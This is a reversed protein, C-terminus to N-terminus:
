YKYKLILENQAIIEENQRYLALLMLAIAENYKASKYHWNEHSDSKGEDVLSLAKEMLEEKSDEM